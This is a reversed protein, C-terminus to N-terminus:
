LRLTGETDELASITKQTVRPESSALVAQVAVATARLAVGRRSATSLAAVVTRPVGAQTPIGSAAFVFSTIAVVTATINEADDSSDDLAVIRKTGEAVSRGIM